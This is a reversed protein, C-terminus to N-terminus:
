QLKAYETKAQNLIPINPDADKWLTLFEKYAALARSRAADRDAASPPMASHAAAQGLGAELAYARALGLRALAGTWCNGYIGSHEMIKRFEEAAESGQGAALYAEGRIYISYLCSTNNCFDMLGLETPSTTRLIDLARSPNKRNLALQAEITPLWSFHLLTGLPFRKDQAQAISEAQASDGAMAFALAALITGPSDPSLKLAWAAFQRAAVTNGYAAQLTAFAALNLAGTEKDDNRRASDAAQQILDGANAVQGSYAETDSDLSLATSADDPHGAFWKRQEAMSAGDGMAFAADYLNLHLESTDIKRALAALAVKRVEDFDQLALLYTTLNEYYRPVDPDLLLAKRTWEAAKEYRGLQASVLGVNNYSSSGRPYSDAMQQYADAAKELEGTVNRYYGATISLRESESAHDRLQFARTYYEMARGPQGLINYANALMRYGMAFDPDLEIARIYYPIAAATGKESRAKEGLSYEKLAALSATTAEELPVDFKQVTALSEGLEGRLKSAAGGLADLVKEKSAATVQEQALTDGNACNVAKLGLVYESGLSTVSGAVYAKSGARLCLERAIEPTLRTDPPRTMLKLTKVVDSDPLPNLFPSQRLSVNLATKLTDDFISDNTSNTFDALVITDKESLGTKQRGSRSYRGVFLVAILLTALVALAIKPTKKPGSHATVAASASTGSTQTWVQGSETDRKLRQLDARLDSAHQYRLTKDKELAKGIIGDLPALVQPNWHSPPEQKEHLIAGYTAGHTDRDFPLRGTAMEYLTVGFSFLDTREDLPKGAVQEPSMYSVTGLAVNKKTLDKISVTPDDSGSGSERTLGAETRKALGFDLVKAHGRKTIFINAPKIDRHIIGAAHAADLADAIEISLTLLLETELTCGAIRNKVTIGELYEMAIFVRGEQEGIDYVTCINPHSLSSAARAERRFRELALPDRSVEDPLFKLAVMRGLESDEAKYVVGMGGSGLKEVIRYRSITEGIM